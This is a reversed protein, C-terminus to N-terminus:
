YFLRIFVRSVRAVGVGAVSSCAAGRDDDEALDPELRHSFRVVGGDGANFGAVEDVVSTRPVVSTPQGYLGYHSYPSKTWTQLTDVGFPRQSRLGPVCGRWVGAPVQWRLRRRVACSAAGEWRYM